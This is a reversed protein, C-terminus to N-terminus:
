EPDFPLLNPNQFPNLRRNLEEEAKVKVPDPAAAKKDKAWANMYAQQPDLTASCLGCHIFVPLPLSNGHVGYAKTVWSENYPLRTKCHCCTVTQSAAARLSGTLHAHEYTTLWRCGGGELVETTM